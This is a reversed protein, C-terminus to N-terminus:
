APRNYAIVRAVSRQRVEGNQNLTQHLVRLSARNPRSRSPVIEDVTGEVHLVDGPVTATPWTVDTGAGVVGTALPFARVVLRMTIAATHWGSAVLQGFFTGKAAEADLHFAQPDFREAFEAIEAATVEYGESAFRQGVTLDDLWLGGAHVPRPTGSGAPPPSDPM